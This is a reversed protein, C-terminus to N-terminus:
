SRPKQFDRKISPTTLNLILQRNVEDINEIMRLLMESPGSIQVGGVLLLHITGVLKDAVVLDPEFSEPRPPYPIDKFVRSALIDAFATPSLEQNQSGLLASEAFAKFVVPSTQLQEHLAKTFTKIGQHPLFQEHERRWQEVTRCFIMTRASPTPLLECGLFDHYFFKAAAEKMGIQNDALLVDFDSKDQRIFACKQPPKRDSPVVNNNPMLRVQSIGDPNTDYIREYEHNLETKFIGLLPGCSDHAVIILLDGSSIKKNKRMIDYLDKALERSRPVFATSSALMDRSALLIPSTGTIDVAYTDANVLATDMLRCLFERTPAPLDIEQDVLILSDKEPDLYHMIAHDVNLGANPSDVADKIIPMTAIQSSM